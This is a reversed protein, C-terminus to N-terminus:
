AASSPSGPQYSQLAGDAALFVVAGDPWASAPRSSPLMFAAESLDAGQVRDNILPRVVDMTIHGQDNCTYAERGDTHVFWQEVGVGTEPGEM